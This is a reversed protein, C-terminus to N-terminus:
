SPVPEIPAEVTEIEEKPSADAIEALADAIETRQRSAVQKLAVRLAHVGGRTMAAALDDAVNPLRDCIKAIEGAAQIIAAEFRDVRILEGKLEALEIRKREAEIWKAQRAAENYSEPDPKAAPAGFDGPAPAQAKSPDDLRGRLRDYEVVNVAKVNGGGDREVTLGNEALKKVKRSVAQKSVGDRQAIASVTWMVSRPAITLPLQADVATMQGTLM